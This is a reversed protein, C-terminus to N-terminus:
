HATQDDKALMLKDVAMMIRGWVAIGYLENRAQLITIRRAAEVIAREGHQQILLNAARWIDIEDMPDEDLSSKAM